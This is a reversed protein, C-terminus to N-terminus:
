KEMFVYTPPVPTDTILTVKTYGKLNHDKLNHRKAETETMKPRLLNSIDFYLSSFQARNYIESLLLDQKKVISNRARKFFVQQMVTM